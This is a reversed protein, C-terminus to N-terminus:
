DRAQGESKDGTNRRLSRLARRWVRQVARARDAPITRRDYRAALFAETLERFDVEAEPWEGTLDQGFELPTKYPPRAVGRQAARQLTSLYFYRIKAAPPLSGLHISSGAPALPSPRRLRLRERLGETAKRASASARAWRARWWFRLGLWRGRSFGALLGHASLYSLLLYALVGLILTWYIAGGLWPPLHGAAQQPPPMEFRPPAQAPQQQDSSSFLFRLPWLLVTFLFLIVALAVQGARAMLGFVYELATALPGTRGLPLLAAVLAVMLIILVSSLHWRKLVGPMVSIGQNYWRGRLVALRGESLLILGAIFYCLLAVVIDPPLNTGTITFKLGSPGALAFSTRSLAACAVLLGGGWGWRWTFQTVTELRSKARVARQHSRSEDWSHTEYAAFEDPQIALELFDATVGIALGWAFILVVGVALFQADLVAAPHVLWLAVQDPGPLGTSFTWVALRLVLLITVLEALRLLLGRRDRWEPRGRQLTSYVGEVAVLLAFPVVYGLRWSTLARLGALPGAVVSASLLSILLPRFLSRVWNDDLFDEYRKNGAQESPHDM